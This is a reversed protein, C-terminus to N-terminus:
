EGPQKRLVSDTGAEMNIDIERPRINHVNKHKPKQREQIDTHKRQLKTSQAPNDQHNSLPEQHSPEKTNHRHLATHGKGM